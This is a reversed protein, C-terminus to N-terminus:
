DLELLTYKGGARELADEVRDCWGLVREEELRRGVVQVGVPLGHMREADYLGYAGRAVGNLGRLKFGEPLADRARDVHTVPLVAATYDLLNFLFTYGCASVAERMGGHAVAPTANPPTLLFDYGAAAWWAHWEARYAERKAVWAWNEAASLPGFDWLLTAWLPDRQVYRVYLAYLWRLIRPLSAFRALQRAGPDLPEGTRLPARFTTCGDANLLVSALVLGRFPSPPSIPEATHGQSELAEVVTDLARRCAPTPDVVGLIPVDASTARRGPTHPM